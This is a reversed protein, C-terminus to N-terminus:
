MEEPKIKKQVLPALIHRKGPLIHCFVDCTLFFIKTHSLTVNRGSIHCIHRTVNKTVSFLSLHSTVWGFRLRSAPFFDPYSRGKGPNRGLKGDCIQTLSKVNTVKKPSLFHSADFKDCKRTQSSHSARSCSFIKKLKHRKKDCGERFVDCKPGAPVFFFQVHLFTVIQSPSFCAKREGDWIQWKDRFRLDPPGNPSLGVRFCSDIQGIAMKPPSKWWWMKEQDRLGQCM